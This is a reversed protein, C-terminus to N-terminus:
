KFVRPRFLSQVINNWFLLQHTLFRLKPNSWAADSFGLPASSGRAWFFVSQWLNISLSFSSAPLAEAFRYSFIILNHLFWLPRDPRSDLRKAFDGRRAEFYKNVDEFAAFAGDIMAKKDADKQNLTTFRFNCYLVDAVSLKNGVLYEQSENEKLRKSLQTM